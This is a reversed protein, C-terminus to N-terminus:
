PRRVLGAFELWAGTRAMGEAFSLRPEYGLLREAKATPLRWRCSQLQCLEATPAPAAPAPLTWGSVVRPTPWALAAAKAIRKARAPIFPLTSMVAPRAAFNALRESATVTFTPAAIRALSGLDAGITSALATYFNLWTLTERDNVFFTQRDAGPQTLGLWIADILNDLGVANCIGQGDDTLWATGALLQRALETVLKSRPGHVIGPRLQVLEVRGTARARLLIREAATKANNYASDQRKLPPTAETTGPAPALGHVAASSLAVIRLVGARAAAPYLAEAMRVIQAPDGLAAHVVYACGNLAAALQGADAPDVVRSPLSFRALVALSRYAHVVPVVEALGGLHLREVLRLGICGSAGIIAIKM